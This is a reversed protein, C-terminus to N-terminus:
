DKKTNFDINIIQILQKISDNTISKNYVISVKSDEAKFKPHITSIKKSDIIFNTSLVLKKSQVNATISNISNTFIIGDQSFNEDIKNNSRLYKCIIQMWGKVPDPYKNIQRDIKFNKM